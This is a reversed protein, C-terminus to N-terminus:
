RRHCPRSRSRRQMRFGPSATRCRAARPSRRRRCRLAAADVLVPNCRGAGGGPLTVRYDTAIASDPRYYDTSVLQAGSAFAADRRAVEGRRAERTDADARTRVIYGAKVLRTIEAGDGLPDNVIMIAAGPVGPSLTAFMARAQWGSAYQARKAGSEDLIAVFRGRAEALRPWRLRGDAFVADPTLLREDLTARLEADFAQWAAEDFPRPTVFGPQEIVDDKANFSLFVPLHGPHTRSWAAIQGLCDTLNVCQSRDDLNQVHLVPFRSHGHASAGRGFLTADPDYFVDIELKRLGLDLQEALPPHAYDLAEALGPDVARLTAMREADMARKYSNHSGLVQIQNLRLNDAPRAGEDISRADTSRADAAVSSAALALLGRLV